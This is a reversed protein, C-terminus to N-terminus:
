IRGVKLKIMHDTNLLHRAAKQLDEKTLAALQATRNDFYDDPLKYRNLFLFTTAINQNTAFNDVLVNAMANKAEEIEFDEIVDAAHNITEEILREAEALRDLSVITKVTAMGPQEDSHTLLSGSITYFLGSQERLQFLRSSMSGLVGGTFIQNFLLTSDFLADQRTISKGAYMLVAQDRNIRYTITEKHAQAVEPFNPQELVDGKWSGLYKELLNKVDHKEIDGIIAIAADHPTIMKTYFNILDDRNIKKISEFDGLSRKSYPHNKYIAERALQNAFQTPQDWYSKLEAQIQERVREIAKPEFTANNLIEALIDLGKQLDESLMDMSISGPVASFSMGYGEIEQALQEASYKKTGETLMASVFTNLGQKDQPDYYHKAPLDIVLEIKPVNANHYTLVELGNSLTFRQTKPFNFPKPKAVNISHVINGAEVEVERTIRSLVREDEQDSRAQLNNWLEKDRDNMSEIIGFHAVSQQCYNKLVDIIDRKLDTEPYKPYTLIFQDNGTALFAQGIAYAQKENSELVSMYASQAQKQARTLEEDSIGHELMDNIENFILAKITSVDKVDKPRFYIFLLGHDFLDYTFTEVETVIELENVLKNYLRSGKGLGLLWCLVDLAYDKGTISGPIVYALCAIPQQIDRYLVVSKSELDPTYYFKDKTYDPNPKIAGFYQESSKFVDEPDVDGVIVLTANNPVYHRKYFDVLTDRKLSWLDHKFGIIPYHYPHDVFITSILSEILTSTYNDKYMKLEQIVAKMESNLLEEKFNCNQMCDAMIPLAEHWHQSPFNFLYGTYDYSTFANCSGSLKNTIMNIDSESLTNTGKFIMHEILHAIGKQGTREDKSGVNYWLQISVKPITHTPRVLITLGNNLVKKYVKQEANQM